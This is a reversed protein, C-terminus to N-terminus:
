FLRRVGEMPASIGVFEGAAIEFNVNELAPVNEYQFSLHEITLAKEKM